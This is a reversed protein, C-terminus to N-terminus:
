TKYILSKLIKNLTARDQKDKKSDEILQSFLLSSNDEEIKSDNIITNILWEIEKDDIIQRVEEATMWPKISNKVEELRIALEEKLWEIDVKPIEIKPFDIKKEEISKLKNLIPTLDIKETKTPKQGIMKEINELKKKMTNDDYPTTAAVTRGWSAKFSYADLENTWPKYRDADSLTPWWDFLYLYQKESSYENFDYIYFWPLSTIEKCVWNTIRVTWNREVIDITVNLWVAPVGANSFYTAIQEM